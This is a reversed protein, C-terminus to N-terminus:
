GAALGVARWLYGLGLGANFLACAMSAISLRYWFRMWKIEDTQCGRLMKVSECGIHACGAAFLLCLCAAGALM